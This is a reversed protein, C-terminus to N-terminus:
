KKDSEIIKISHIYSWGDTVQWRFIIIGSPLDVDYVREYVDSTEATVEPFDVTKDGAMYGLSCKRDGGVTFVVKLVYRGAVPINSQWTANDGAPGGFSGKKSNVEAHVLHNELQEVNQEDFVLEDILKTPKVIQAIIKSLANNSNFCDELNCFNMIKISHIYSWGGTSEWTFKITGAPLDVLYYKKYVGPKDFTVEPINAIQNGIAFSIRCKRDGGATFVVDLLYRGAQPINCQWIVKNGAPGGFSGKKSNVEAKVLHNELQNINSEDFVLQDIVKAPITSVAAHAMIRSLTKGKYVATEELRLGDHFANGFDNLAEPMAKASLTQSSWTGQQPVVFKATPLNCEWSISDIRGPNNPVDAKLIVETGSPLTQNFFIVNLEQSKGIPAPKDSSVLSLGAKNTFERYSKGGNQSVIIAKEPGQNTNDTVMAQGSGNPLLVITDGSIEFAVDIGNLQVQKVKPAYLELQKIEDPNSLSVEAVGNKIQVNLADVNENSKVFAQSGHALNSGDILGYSYTEGTTNKRIQAFHSDAKIEGYQTLEPQAEGFFLYDKGSQSSIILGVAKDPSVTKGDIQASIRNVDAKMLEKGRCPYLLYEGSYPLTTVIKYIATPTPIAASKQGFGGWGQMDYTGYDKDPIDAPIDKRREKFGMVNKVELGSTESPVILLNSDKNSTHVAKTASDLVLNTPTIHWMTEVTHTGTGEVVDRVVWYDPKVFVVKRRHTADVIDHLKVRHMQRYGLSYKGAAYDFGPSSVWRNNLPSSTKWFQKSGVRNQGLGDIMITNHSETHGQYWRFPTHEYGSNDNTCDFLLKKGFASLELNLADEHVHAAGFPGADFVLWKADKTWGSRNVYLGAYPLGISNYKPEVGSLYGSSVFQMDPRDFKKAAGALTEKINTIGCDNTCPLEGSTDSLYMVDELMRQHVNRLMPPEAINNRKLLVQFYRLAVVSVWHYHPTLEQQMGDPYIQSNYAQVIRDFAIDVWQRSEKFEPFVIGLSGLGSAIMFVWNGGCKCKEQALWRGHIILAKLMAIQADPTFASSKRFLFWYDTWAALRLGATLPSWAFHIRAIDDAAPLPVDEIWSMLLDVCAQAYKEQGTNEYAAAVEGLSGSCHINIGCAFSKNHRGNIQAAQASWDIRKGLDYSIGLRTFIHKCINDAKTTDFKDDHKIKYDLRSIPTKRNDFYKVLELRANSYNGADVAEKVAKLAPLSLDISDFFEKDSM